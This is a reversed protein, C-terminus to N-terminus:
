LFRSNHISVFTQRPRRTLDCCPSPQSSRCISFGRWSGAEPDKSYRVKGEGNGIWVPDGASPGLELRYSYQTQILVEFQQAIREALEPSEVIIGLEM